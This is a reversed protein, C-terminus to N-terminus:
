PVGRRRLFLGVRYGWSCSWVFASRRDGDDDSGAFALAGGGGGGGSAFCRGDRDALNEFVSWEPDRALDSGVSIQGAEVASLVCNETRPGARAPPRRFSFTRCYSASQCANYCDVEVM